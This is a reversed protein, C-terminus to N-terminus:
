QMAALIFLEDIEQEGFGKESLTNQVEINNRDITEADAVYGSVIIQKIALASDMQSRNVSEPIPPQEYDDGTCVTVGVKHRVLSFIPNDAIFAFYAGDEKEFYTKM